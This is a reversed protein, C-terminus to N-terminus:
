TTTGDGERLEADYSLEQIAAIIQEPTVKDPDYTVVATGDDYSAEVSTVGDLKKVKLKVGAECGGCTMGEVDFTSTTAQADNGDAVAQGVWGVAGLALLAVLAAMTKKTFPNKM